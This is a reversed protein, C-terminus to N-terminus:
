LSWQRKGEMHGQYLVATSADELVNWNESGDSTDFVPGATKRELIARATSPADSTALCKAMLGLGRGCPKPNLTYTKPQLTHPKPHLILSKRNLTSCLAESLPKYPKPNLSWM